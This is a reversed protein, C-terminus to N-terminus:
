IDIYAHSVVTPTIRKTMTSERVHYGHLEEAFVDNPDVTSLGEETVYTWGGGDVDQNCIANYSVEEGITIVERPYCDQLRGKCNHM